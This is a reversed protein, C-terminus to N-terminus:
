KLTLHSSGIAYRGIQAAPFTVFISPLTIRVIQSLFYIGADYVLGAQNAGVELYSKTEFIQGEPLVAIGRTLQPM